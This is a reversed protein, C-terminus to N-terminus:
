QQSFVKRLLETTRAVPNERIREEEEAILTFLGEMAKKTVYDDLDTNIDKVGPVRNYITAFDTYYRTLSVQDIVDSVVPNFKSYLQGSTTRELYNTAAHDSGKLIDWADQITMNKIASIFIPKAEDAASEAARNMTLLFKDVADDLGLQRLKSEADQVDPPLPIKIKPNKFYGNLKSAQSTGETTGKELAQKLGAVVEQTTLSEEDGLIDGLTKNIQSSSCSTFFVVLLLFFYNQKKMNLVNLDVFM